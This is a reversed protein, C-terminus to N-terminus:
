KIREYRIRVDESNLEDIGPVHAYMQTDSGWAMPKPKFLRDDLQPYPRSQCIYRLADLNHDDGALMDDPKDPDYQALPLTRILDKCTNFIYVMPRGDLGVFLSRLHEWGGRNGTRETNAKRFHLGYQLRLREEISPGAHKNWLDLGAVRYTISEQGRPEGEIELKIVKEGYQNLDWNLGINTSNGYEDRRAIHLERYIVLSDKPLGGRYPRQYSRGGVRVPEPISNEEPVVAAWLNAWPSGGGWDTGHIRTWGKPVDFPQIVHRVPDFEPYFMGEIINPNGNLLADVLQPGGMQMVQGIYEPTNTYKNDRVTSPIWMRIKTTKKGEHEFSYPIPTWGGPAPSYYRQRVWGVGRGVWNGTAIFKCQAGSSTRLCGKLKDLPIPSPFSAIEEVYIRTRSFGQYKEHDSDQEICGFMLTAGNPFTWTNEAGNYKANLPLYLEKSRAILDRLQKLERRVCLGRAASGWRQAHCAFEGLIGDSKGGGKGGLFGIDDAPCTLLATQPGPLPTWIQRHKSPDFYNM